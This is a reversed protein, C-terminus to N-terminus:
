TETKLTAIKIPRAFFTSGAREVAFWEATEDLDILAKCITGSPRSWLADPVGEVTPLANFSEQTMLSQGQIVFQHKVTREWMM